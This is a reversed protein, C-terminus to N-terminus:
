LNGGRASLLVVVIPGAAVILILSALQIFIDVNM